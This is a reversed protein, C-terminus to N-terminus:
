DKTLLEWDGIGVISVREARNFRQGKFNQSNSVYNSLNKMVELLIGRM